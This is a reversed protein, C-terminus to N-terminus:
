YTIRDKYRNVAGEVFRLWATMIEKSHTPPAPRKGYIEERKPDMYDLKPAYFENSHGLTVFPTIGYKLCVEFAQDTEQWDYQDKVKEIRDWSACLRTWKIGISAAKKLIKEDLTGAQIGWYSDKIEKSNKSKVYGLFKYDILDRKSSCDLLVFFFLFVFIGSSERIINM